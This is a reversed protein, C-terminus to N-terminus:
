KLSCAVVAGEEGTVVEVEVEVEEIRVESLARAMVTEVAPRNVRNAAPVDQLVAKDEVELTLLYLHTAVGAVM